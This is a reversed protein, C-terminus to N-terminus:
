EFSVQIGLLEELEYIRRVFRRWGESGGIGYGLKDLRMIWMAEIQRIRERTVSFMDGVEDLTRFQRLGDLGAHLFIMEKFRGSYSPFQKLREFMENVQAVLHKLEDKAEVYNALSVANRDSIMDYRNASGDSTSTHFDMEADLSVTQNVVSLARKVKEVSIGIEDALEEPTPMRDLEQMLINKTKQVKVMIDVLYDPLRVTRSKQSLSKLIFQKIWWVAYTAFTNGREPEFKEIAKMLGISGEQVYDLLKDSDGHAYKKAIFVVFPINSVIFDERAKEDGEKIRKFYDPMEGHTPVKIKGMGKFFRETSTLEDKSPGEAIEDDVTPAPQKKHSLESEGNSAAFGNQDLEIGLKDLTRLFTAMMPQLREPDKLLEPLTIGRVASIHLTGLKQAEVLVSLSDPRLGCERMRKPTLLTKAM